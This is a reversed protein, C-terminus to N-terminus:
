DSPAFQFVRHVAFLFSLDLMGLVWFVAAGAGALWFVPLSMAGAVGMQHPVTLEKGSRSCVYM